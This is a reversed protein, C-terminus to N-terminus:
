HKVEFKWERAFDNQIGQVKVLSKNYEADFKTALETVKAIDTETIDEDKKSIIEVLQKGENELLTVMTNFYEAAGDAFDRKKNFEEMKKCEEASSKAKESFQAHVIKLSDTNHGDLQDIFKNHLDTVDKEIAVIKDNYAVAQEKTPGCSVLLVSAAMAAIITIKKMKNNSQHKKIQLGLSRHRKDQRASFTVEASM